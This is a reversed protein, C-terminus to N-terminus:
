ENESITTITMTQNHLECKMFNFSPSIEGYSYFGTIATDPGYMARVVEVEEEIRQNLVLKRGVCSILIALEPKQTNGNISNAAAQSAGEILRDFNAKMLRAYTGEPMNGAFTLSKEEENIGLITRVILEGGGEATRICLPFLM